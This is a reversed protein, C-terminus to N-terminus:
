TTEFGIKTISTQKFATCDITNSNVVGNQKPAYNITTCFASRHYLTADNRVNRTDHDNKVDDRVNTCADATSYNLTM